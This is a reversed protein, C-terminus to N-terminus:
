FLKFLEIAVFIAIIIIALILGYRASPFSVNIMRYPRKKNTNNKKNNM